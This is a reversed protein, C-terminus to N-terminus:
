TIGDSNECGYIQECFNNKSANPYFGPLCQMCKSIGDSM